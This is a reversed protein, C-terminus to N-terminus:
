KLSLVDQLPTDNLFVTVESVAAFQLVTEEIQAQVRPNDCTGGLMLTGALHVTAKGDEVSASEVQLDSQYLANYLGAEGYFQEKIAFLAELAAQMADQSGPITIKVPIASDGCGVLEGAKGNDELAILFISAEQPPVETSATPAKPTAAPPPTDPPAITIAQRQVIGVTCATMTLLSCIISILTAKRM